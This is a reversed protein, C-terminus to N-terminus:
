RECAINMHGQPRAYTCQVHAHGFAEQRSRVKRVLPNNEYCLVTTIKGSFKMSGGLDLGVASSLRKAEADATAADFTGLMPAGEEEIVMRCFAQKMLPGAGWNLVWQGVNGLAHLSQAAAVLLKKEAAWRFIPAAIRVKGLGRAAMDDVSEPHFVDCLDATGARSADAPPYVPPAEAAVATASAAAAFAAAASTAVARSATAATRASTPAAASCAAVAAAAAAASPAARIPPKASQSCVHHHRLQPAGARIPNPWAAISRAGLGDTCSRACVACRGCSCGACARPLAASAHLCGRADGACPQRGAACM